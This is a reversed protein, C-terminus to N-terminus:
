PAVVRSVSALPLKWDPFSTQSLNLRSAMYHLRRTAPGDSTKFRDTLYYPPIAQYFLQAHVTFPGSAGAPLTARYTVTDSGGAFNPDQAAQGIPRTAEVFAEDMGAPGDHTWGRPLLRNDKIEEDRALFSTTRRGETDLTIEEYIQAEDQSDVVQHHPQVPQEGQSPVSESPLPQGNAGVVLGLGNTSGSRWVLDGQSDQVQVQLLLRRFGVGSPLRHGVLNTVKVQTELVQGQLESSLVELSASQSANQLSNAISNDLGNEFGTMFSKTRVGLLDPYQRFLELAFVNIGALAHRSYDPRPNVTIEDIPALGRTDPFDQDQVNALKFELPDSNHFTKPMHCDQCSKLDAEGAFSSNQWEFYTSQEYRTAVTHGQQDLVPLNVTHCSACLLSSQIHEGKVPLMGLSERMPRETPHGVPGFITLLGDSVPQLVFRGTEIDTFALKSQDSIQHCVTCSVGDRALGGYEANPDDGQALAKDLTFLSDPHDATYQRQGMVGHCRLCVNALSEATYDGGPVAHLAIESELQTYFIPDRGALGMMSWGWEGWPSIDTNDAIMNPGFPSNDGAHCSMCQDSTTFRRHGDAIVHDQTVPPMAQVQSRTQAPFHDFYDLFEQNITGEQLALLISPPLAKSNPHTEPDDDNDTMWSDDVEYEEPQGPFGEINETSAFTLYSEASGHCRVCYQGFGSNPYNFPHSDNDPEQPTGDPAVAFFSWHWGDVSGKKDRVMVTWLSPATEDDRGEYRAAPPEFMEKILMAGDAPEGQRGGALWDLIEPSYYMRVAPHTGYYVGNKYPGTDRIRKDKRWGLSVYRRSALFPYLQKQFERESVSSPLPLGSAALSPEPQTGTVVFEDRTQDCGTLPLALLLFLILRRMPTREEGGGAM